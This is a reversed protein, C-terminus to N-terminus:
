GQPPARADFAAAARHVDAACRQAPRPAQAPPALVPGAAVTPMGLGLLAGDILRCTADDAAHGWTDDATGAAQWTARAGGIGHAHGIAHWLGLGQALLLGLVAGGLWRRAFDPRLLRRM